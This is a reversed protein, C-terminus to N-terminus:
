FGEKEFYNRLRLRIESLKVRVEDIDKAYLKSIEEPTDYYYYRRMFIKRDDGPLSRLFDSIKKAILTVMFDDAGEGSDEEGPVCDSLENAAELGTDDSDILYSVDVDFLQAISSLMEDSPYRKGLEWKTVLARSVFLKGALEEQSLNNKKRLKRLADKVMTGVEITLTIAHVNLTFHCITDGINYSKQFGSDFLM